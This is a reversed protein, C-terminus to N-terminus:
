LKYADVLTHMLIETATCSFVTRPIFFVNGLTILFFCVFHILSILENVFLENLFLVLLFVLTSCLMLTPSVCYNPLTLLCSLGYLYLLKHKGFLNFYM